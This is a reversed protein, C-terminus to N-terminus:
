ENRLQVIQPCVFTGDSFIRFAFDEPFKEATEIDMFDLHQSAESSIRFFFYGTEKRLLFVMEDTHRQIAVIPYKTNSELPEEERAEYMTVDFPVSDPIKEPDCRSVVVAMVRGNNSETRIDFFDSFLDDNTKPKEVLDKAFVFVFYGNEKDSKEGAVFVMKESDSGIYRIPLCLGNRTPTTVYRKAMPPKVARMPNKTASPNTIDM